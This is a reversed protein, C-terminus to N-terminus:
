EAATQISTRQCYNFALTIPQIHFVSGLATHKFVKNEAAPVTQPFDSVSLLHSRTPLLPDCPSLALVQSNYDLSRRAWIEADLSAIIFLRRLNCGCVRGSM